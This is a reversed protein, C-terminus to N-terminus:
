GAPQEQVVPYLVRRWRVAVVAWWYGVSLVDGFEILLPLEFLSAGGRRRGVLHVLM